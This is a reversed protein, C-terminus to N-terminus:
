NSSLIVAFRATVDRGVKKNRYDETTEVFQIFVDRDGPNDCPAKFYRGFWVLILVVLTPRDRATRHTHM